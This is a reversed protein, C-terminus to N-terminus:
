FKKETESKGERLRCPPMYISPLRQSVKRTRKRMEFTWFADFTGAASVILAYPKRQVARIAHALLLSKLLSRTNQEM